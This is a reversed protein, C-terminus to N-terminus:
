ESLEALLQKSAHSVCMEGAFTFSPRSSYITSRKELLDFAINKDNIIILTTGFVTVSSIPGTVKNAEASVRIVGRVM